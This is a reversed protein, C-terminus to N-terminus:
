RYDASVSCNLVFGTREQCERYKNAMDMFELVETELCLYTNTEQQTHLKVVTLMFAISCAVNEGDALM